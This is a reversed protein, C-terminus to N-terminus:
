VYVPLVQPNPPVHTFTPHMGLFSICWAARRPWAIFTSMDLLFFHMLECKVNYKQKLIRSVIPPLNGTWIDGM